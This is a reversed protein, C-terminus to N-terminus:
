STDVGQFVADLKQVNTSSLQTAVTTTPTPSSGIHIECTVVSSASLTILKWTRQKSIWPISRCRWLCVSQLFINWPSSSRRETTNYYIECFFSFFYTTPWATNLIYNGQNTPLNRFPQIIRWPDSVMTTIDKNIQEFASTIQDEPFLIPPYNSLIGVVLPIASAARSSTVSYVNGELNLFTRPQFTPPVQCGLFIRQPRGWTLFRKAVGVGRWLQRGGGRCNWNKPCGDTILFPPAPTYFTDETPRPKPSVSLFLLPRRGTYPNRPIQIRNIITQQHLYNVRQAMVGKGRGRFISGRGNRLAEAM